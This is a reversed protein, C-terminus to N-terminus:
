TKPERLSSEDPDDTLDPELNARHNYGVSALWRDVRIKPLWDAKNQDPFRALITLIIPSDIDRLLKM